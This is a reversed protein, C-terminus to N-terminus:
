NSRTSKLSGLEARIAEGAPSVRRPVPDAAWKPCQLETHPPQFRQCMSGSQDGTGFHRPAFALAAINPAVVSEAVARPVGVKSASRVALTEAGHDVWPTDLHRLRSHHVALQSEDPGTHCDEAASEVRVPAVQVPAVQVAVGM